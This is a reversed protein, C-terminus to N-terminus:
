TAVATKRRAALLRDALVLVTGVVLFVALVGGANRAVTAADHLRLDLFPYPYEDVWAGRLLVWGLYALPFLLWVPLERWRLMGHPVCLVWWLLYLLPVAYHLGSDAWWQAGQPQWLHRLVLFYIGLTVTICLAVGGRVSPHVFFGNVGTTAAVTVGLVLLNSLITFYSFYRITAFLPGVTDLTLRILLVYQLVLSAAATLAVVTVFRRNRTEMVVTRGPM